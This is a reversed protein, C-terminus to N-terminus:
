NQRIDSGLQTSFVEEYKLLLGEVESNDGEVLIKMKWDLQLVELWDRGMLTLGEDKM